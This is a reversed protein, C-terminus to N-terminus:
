PNRVFYDMYDPWGGPPLPVFGVDDGLYFYDIVDGADSPLQIVASNNKVDEETLSTASWIQGTVPRVVGPAPDNSIFVYCYIM